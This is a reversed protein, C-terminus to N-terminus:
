SNFKKLIWFAVKRIAPRTNTVIYALPVVICGFWCLGLATDLDDDSLNGDRGFWRVNLIFGVACWCIILISTIFINMM